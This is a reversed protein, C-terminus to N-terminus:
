KFTWSYIKNFEPNPIEFFHVVELNTGKCAVAFRKNDKIEFQRIAFAKKQDICFSPDYDQERGEWIQQIFRGSKAYIFTRAFSGDKVGQPKWVESMDINMCDGKSVLWWGEGVFNFDDIPYALAFQVTAGTTNCVRLTYKKAPTPAPEPQAPPPPKPAPKSTPGYYSTGSNCALRKNSYIRIEIVYRLNLYKCLYEDVLAPRFVLLNFAYDERGRDWTVSENKELTWCRLAIVMYKDTANYVCIKVRDTRGNTIKVVDARATAPQTLAVFSLLVVALV